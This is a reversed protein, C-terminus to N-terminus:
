VPPRARPLWDQRCDCGDCHRAAPRHWHGRDSPPEPHPPRLALLSKIYAEIDIFSDQLLEFPLAISKSSYKYVNM